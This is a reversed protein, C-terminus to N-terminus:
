WGLAAVTREELRLLRQVQKGSAKYEFHLERALDMKADMSLSEPRATGYRDRCLQRVVLFLEDDTYIVSDGLLKAIDQYAEVNRSVQYFYHRSDRFLREGLAIDCFSMPSIFGDVVVADGPYDVDHCRFLARQDMVRLDRFLRDWRAQADPNFYFRNAGWPYSYPSYEPHAVYGNRNVYAITNRLFALNDIPLVSAQFGKLDRVRGTSQYYRMLHKRFLAFWAAAAEPGGSFVLHLHTRMIVFTIVHVGPVRSKCYAVLNMAFRFDAEDEFLALTAEGPTCLHYYPGHSRFLIECQQERDQFRLPRAASVSMTNM